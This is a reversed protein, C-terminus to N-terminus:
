LWAWICASNGISTISTISTISSTSAVTM